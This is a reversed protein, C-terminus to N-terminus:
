DEAHQVPRGPTFKGRLAANRREERTAPMADVPPRHLGEGYVKGRLKMHASNLELLQNEVIQLRKLVAVLHDDHASAMEVLEAVRRRTSLWTSLRNFM